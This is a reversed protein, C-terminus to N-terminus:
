SRRPEVSSPQREPSGTEQPRPPPQQRVGSLTVTMAGLLTGLFLYGYATAQQPLVVDGEPRKGSMVLVAVLWAVAPVVAGLRSRLLRGGAAFVGVSGALALVLGVPLPVPGADVTVAQLFSGAAGIVAGLVLFAAYAAVRGIRRIVPEV